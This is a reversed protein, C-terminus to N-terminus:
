RRALPRHCAPCSDGQLSAPRASASARTGTAFAFVLLSCSPASVSALTLSSSFITSAWRAATALAQALRSRNPLSTAPCFANWSKAPSWKTCSCAMSADAWRLRSSTSSAFALRSSAAAMSASASAASLRDAQTGIKRAPRHQAHDQQGGRPPRADDDAEPDALADADLALPARAAGVAAFELRRGVAGAVDAAPLALIAERGDVAVLLPQAERRVPDDGAALRHPQD